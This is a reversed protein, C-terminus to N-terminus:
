HAILNSRYDKGTVLIPQLGDQLRSYAADGIYLALGSMNNTSVGLPRGAKAREDIIQYFTEQRFPKPTAKDMDDIVLFPTQIAHKVLEWENGSHDMRDYFASFFKPSTTFLSSVEQERLVNCISALLHTKGLGCEGYLLFVGKPDQVFAQAKRLAFKLRNRDEERDQKNVVFQAFTKAALGMDSWEKGLWGYTRAALLHLREERAKKAKRQNRVERECVCSRPIYRGSPLLLPEVVRGCITCHRPPLAQIDGTIPLGQIDGLRTLKNM